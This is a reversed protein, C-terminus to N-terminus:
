NRNDKETYRPIDIKNNWRILSQTIWTISYYKSSVHPLIAMSVHVLRRTHLTQLTYQHYLWEEPLIEQKESLLRFYQHFDHQVTKAFISFKKIHQYMLEEGCILAFYESINCARVINQHIM